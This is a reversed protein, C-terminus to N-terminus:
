NFAFGPSRIGKQLGAIRELVDPPLLLSDAIAAIQEAERWARELSELEGDLAKRESEEQLSMELALRTVVPFRTFFGGYNSARQLTSEVCEDASGASDVLEIATSVQESDGGFPTLAPVVYGLVRKVDPGRLLEVGKTHHLSLGFRDPSGDSFVRTAEVDDQTLHFLREGLWFSKAPRRKPGEDILWLATGYSAWYAALAFGAAAAGLAAGVAGGVMTGVILGNKVRRRRFRRGYRWAAFEPFLPKGIRILTVGERLEVLGINETSVRIHTRRFQRECEDITEWREELPSLNWRACSRCIVWLRGKNGDFALRKGVPFRPLLENRGLYGQCYLCASYM